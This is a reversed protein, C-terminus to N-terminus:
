SLTVPASAIVPEGSPGRAAATLSRRGGGHGVQTPTDEAERFDAVNALFGRQVVAGRRPISAGHRGSPAHRRPIEAHEGSRDADRSEAVADCEDREAELRLVGGARPHPAAERDRRHEDAEPRRDDEEGPVDPEEDVPDLRPAQQHHDREELGADRDHEGEQRRFREPEEEREGGEQPRPDRHRLRRLEREDGRDGALPFQLAGVPEDLGAPREAEGDPREAAAQEDGEAPGSSRQGDVGGREDDDRERPDREGHAPVRSGGAVALYTTRTVTEREEELVPEDPEDHDHHEDGQEEHGGRDRGVQHVDLVHEANVVDPDPDDQAGPREAHEDARVDDGSADGDGAECARCEDTHRHLPEALQQRREPEDEAEHDDRVEDPADAV